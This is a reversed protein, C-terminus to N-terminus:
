NIGPFCFSPCRSVIIGPITWLPTAPQSVLGHWLLINLHFHPFVPLSIAHHQMFPGLAGMFLHKNKIWFQLHIAWCNCVRLARESFLPETGLVWMQSRGVVQKEPEQPIHYGRSETLAQVCTTCMFESLYMRIYKFLFLFCIKWNLVPSWQLKLSIVQKATINRMQFPCECLQFANALM